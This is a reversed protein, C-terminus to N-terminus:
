HRASEIVQLIWNLSQPQLCITGRLLQGHLEVRLQTSNKEILEYQGRDCRRVAGRNGSLPGEFDLYALRHDSLLRAPVQEDRADENFSEAWRLPLSRLEWTRLVEGWELMFDWHSPKGYSPPCDHRLLVFQPM